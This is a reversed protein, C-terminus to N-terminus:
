NSWFKSCAGLTQHNGESYKQNHTEIQAATHLFTKIMEIQQQWTYQDSSLLIQHVFLWNFIRKGAHLAEFAGNGNEITEVKGM